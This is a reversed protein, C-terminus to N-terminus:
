YFWWILLVFGTTSGSIQGLPLPGIVRSVQPGTCRGDKKPSTLPLPARAESGGPDVVAFYWGNFDISSHLLNQGKRRKLRETVMHHFSVTTLKLYQFHPLNKDNQWMVWSPWMKDMCPCPCCTSPFIQFNRNDQETWEAQLPRM